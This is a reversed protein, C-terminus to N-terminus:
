RNALEKLVDQHETIFDDVMKMFKPTVGGTQKKKKVPSLIISNNQFNIAVNDGLKLGAEKQVEPSLTVGISNGIKIIKQKM